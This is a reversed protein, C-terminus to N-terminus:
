VCAFSVGRRTLVFLLCVVIQLLRPGRVVRADCGPCFGELRAGPEQARAAAVVDERTAIEVRAPSGGRPHGLHPPLPVRARTVLTHPGRQAHTRTKRRRRRRTFLPNFRPNAGCCLTAGGRCGNRLTNSTIPAPNVPVKSIFSAQAPPQSLRRMIAMGYTCAAAASESPVGHVAERAQRCYCEDIGDWVCRRVVSVM